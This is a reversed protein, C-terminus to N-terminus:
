VILINNDQKDVTHYQGVHPHDKLCLISENGFNTQVTRLSHSMSILGAQLKDYRFYIGRCTFQLVISFFEANLHHTSYIPFFELHFGLQGRQRYPLCQQGDELCQSDKAIVWTTFIYNPNSLRHFVLFFFVPVQLFFMRHLASAVSSIALYLM